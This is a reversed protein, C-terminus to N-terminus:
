DNMTKSVPVSKQYEPLGSNVAEFCEARIKTVPKDATEIAPHIKIYVDRIPALPLLATKPMWRHLNGISVPVIKVGAQKAMQFAGKKFPLLRGDDSRTGEAFLVMSNGDLLRKITSETCQLTSQLDDRKLFIHGAMKMAFGIMPIQKIEAKSLYKFPRPVFGSLTLIDMLSTHNPVYVVTEGYKPLNEIGILKPRYGVLTMAFNAWLHVIWDLLRRRNKDGFVDCIPALLAIIPTVFVALGFASLAYLLGWMNLIKGKVLIHQGPNIPISYDIKGNGINEISVSTMPLSSTRAKTIARNFRIHFAECGM